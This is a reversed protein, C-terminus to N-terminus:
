IENTSTRAFCDCGQGFTQAALVARGVWRGGAGGGGGAAPLSPPAARPLATHWPLQEALYPM